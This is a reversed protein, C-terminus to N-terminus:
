KYNKIKKKYNKDSYKIKEKNKYKFKKIKWDNSYM